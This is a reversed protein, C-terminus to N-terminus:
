NINIIITHSFEISKETNMEEGLSTLEAVIMVKFLRSSTAILAFVFFVKKQKFTHKLYNFRLM